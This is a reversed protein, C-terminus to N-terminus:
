NSLRYILTHLFKYSITLQLVKSSVSRVPMDKLVIDWLMVDMINNSPALIGNQSVCSCHYEFGHCAKLFSAQIKRIETLNKFFNARVMSGNYELRM